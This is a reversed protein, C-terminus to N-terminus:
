EALVDVLKKLNHIGGADAALRKVKTILEVVDGNGTWGTTGAARKRKQKRRERSQKSKIYYVLTPAVKIGREALQAVIERSKAGPTKALAERIAASKNVKKGDDGSGEPKAM